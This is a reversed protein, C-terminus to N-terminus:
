FWKRCDTRSATWKTDRWSVIDGASSVAEYNRDNRRERRASTIERCIKRGIREIMVPSEGRDTVTGVTNVALRVARDGAFLRARAMADAQDAYIGIPRGNIRLGYM